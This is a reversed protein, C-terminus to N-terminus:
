EFDTKIFSVDDRTWITYIGEDLWFDHVREGLGSIKGTSNVSASLQLYDDM